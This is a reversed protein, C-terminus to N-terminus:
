FPNILFLNWILSWYLKTWQRLLWRYTIRSSIYIQWLRRSIYSHQHWICMRPTCCPDVYLCFDSSIVLYRWKTLIDTTYKYCSMYCSKPLLLPHIAESSLSSNQLRGGVRILGLTDVFPSCSSLSNSNVNNSEIQKLEESFYKQQTINVLIVKAFYLKHSGLESNKPPVIIPVIIDNNYLLIAVIISSAYCM